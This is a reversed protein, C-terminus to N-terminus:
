QDMDQYHTQNKLKTYLARRYELLKTPNKLNSKNWLETQVKNKKTYIKTLTQSMIIKLLYHVSDIKPGRLFRVDEILDKKKNNILVLDIQNLTIQDPALWIGKHIRKHQFQTSMVTLNNGIAFELLMEGNRNSLEHLTHKGSVENYIDENGLKVDADGNVLITDSKPIQDILLQLNEYFDEKESDAKDETPTYVNVLTVNNYKGKIRIKCHRENIAEFGIGNNIIRGM